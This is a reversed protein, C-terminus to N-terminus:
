TNVKIITPLLIKTYVQTQNKHVIGHMVFLVENSSELVDSSHKPHVNKDKKQCIDRM